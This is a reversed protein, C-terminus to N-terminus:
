NFCVNQFLERLRVPCQFGLFLGALLAVFNILIALVCLSVVGAKSTDAHIMLYEFVTTLALMSTPLIILFAERFEGERNLEALLTMVSSPSQPGAMQTAFLIPAIGVLVGTAWLMLRMAVYSIIPVVNSM